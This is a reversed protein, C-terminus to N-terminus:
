HNFIVLRILWTIIFLVILSHYVSVNKYIRIYLFDSQNVILATIIAALVIIGLPHYKFSHWIDLNLLSSMSRTIGCAPCPLGFINQMPCLIVNFGESPILALVLVSLLALIRIYQKQFIISIMKM